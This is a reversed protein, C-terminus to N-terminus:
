YFTPTFDFTIELSADRGRIVEIENLATLHGTGCTHINECDLLLGGNELAMIRSWCGDHYFYRGIDDAHAVYGALYLKSGCLRYELSREMPAGPVLQLYDGTHIHSALHAEEGHWELIRGFVADIQYIHATNDGAIHFQQATTHNIVTVGEVGPVGETWISLAAFANGANHLLVRNEVPQPQCTAPLLATGDMTQRLIGLTAASELTLGDLLYAYPSFATLTFELFGSLFINNSSDMYPFVETWSIGSTVIVNYYCYPRHDMILRGHRGPRLWAGIRARQKETLGEYGCVMKFERAKVDYGYPIGGPVGSITESRYSIGDNVAYIDNPLESWILGFDDTHQGCFSFGRGRM